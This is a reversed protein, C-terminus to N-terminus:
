STVAFLRRRGTLGKLEHEGRDEFSLRSGAVLDVVTSSVLIEGASALAGVRAGINVATGTLKNPAKECEARTSGRGSRSAWRGFQMASRSQAVFEARRATSRLSSGMESPTLSSAASGSSSVDCPLMPAVRAAGGVFSGRSQCRARDVRRQGHLSHVSTAGRWCLIRGRWSWMRFSVRRLYSIWRGVASWRTLM